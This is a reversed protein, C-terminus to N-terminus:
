GHGLGKGKGVGTDSQVDLGIKKGVQQGAQFASWDVKDWYTSRGGTRRSSRAERKEAEKRRDAELKAAEEPHAAAWRTHEEEAQRAAEARAARKAADEMRLRASTGPALGHYEDRNADKETQALSAITVATATSAGKSAAEAARKEAEHIKRQEEAIMEKRRDRLRECIDMVAGKRFDVAWKSFRQTNNNGLREMVQREVAQELYEAMAKTTAVNHRRGVLGHFRTWISVEYTAWTGDDNKWGYRRREKRFGGDAFYLCFNLEAVEQWIWVQYDYFGGKVKEQKRTGGEELADAGIAAIDLNLKLALDAAKQLAVATENQNPNKHARQLLKAITEAGAKQEPTFPKDAEM